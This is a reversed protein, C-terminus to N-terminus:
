LGREHMITKIRALERRLTRIRLPQNGEGGTRRRVRVQTLEKLTESCLQRLEDGTQERMRATKM